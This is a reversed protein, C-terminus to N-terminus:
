IFAVAVSRAKRRIVGCRRARDPEILLDFEIPLKDPQAVELVAEADSLNRVMCGTSSRSELLEILAPKRVVLGCGSSKGNMAIVGMLPELM